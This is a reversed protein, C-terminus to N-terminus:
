ADRRAELRVGNEDVEDKGEPEEEAEREARVDCDRLADSLRLEENAEELEVDSPKGRERDRLEDSLRDDIAAEDGEEEDPREGEHVDLPGEEDRPRAIEIRAADTAGAKKEDAL